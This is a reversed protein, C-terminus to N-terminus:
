CHLKRMPVHHKIHSTSSLRWNLLYPNEQIERSMAVADRVPSIIVNRIDMLLKTSM